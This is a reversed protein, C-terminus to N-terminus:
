REAQQFSTNAGSLGDAVHCTLEAQGWQRLRPHQERFDCSRQGFTCFRNVWEQDPVGQVMQQLYRPLERKLTTEGAFELMSLNHLCEPLPLRQNSAHRLLITPRNLAIAMGLEI